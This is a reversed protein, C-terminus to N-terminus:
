KKNYAYYKGDGEYLTGGHMHTQVYWFIGMWYVPYPPYIIGPVVFLLSTLCFWFGSFAIQYPFLIFCYFLGHRRYSQYEEYSNFGDEGMIMPMNKYVIQLPFTFLVQFLMALFMLIKIFINRDGYEKLGFFPIIIKWWKLCNKSPCEGKNCGFCFFFDCKHCKCNTYASNPFYAYCKPCHIILDNLTKMEKKWEIFKTNKSVDQNEHLTTFFYRKRTYGNEDVEKIHPGFNNDDDANLLDNDLQSNEM